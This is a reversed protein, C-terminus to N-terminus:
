ICPRPLPSACPTSRPPFVSKHVEYQSDDGAYAPYGPQGIMTCSLLVGFYEYLHTLLMSHFNDACQGLQNIM